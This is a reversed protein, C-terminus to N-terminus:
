PYIREAPFISYPIPLKHLRPRPLRLRSSFTYWRPPHFFFVENFIEKFKVSILIKQVTLKQGGNDFLSALSALQTQRPGRQPPLRQQRSLALASLSRKRITSRDIALMCKHLPIDNAPPHLPSLSFRFALFSYVSVGMCVWARSSSLARGHVRTNIHTDQLRDQLIVRNWAPKHHVRNKFCVFFLADTKNLTKGNTKKKEIHTTTPLSLSLEMWGRTLVGGNKQRPSYLSWEENMAVTECNWLGDKINKEIKEKTSPGRLVESVRGDREPKTQSPLKGKWYHLTKVAQRLGESRGKASAAVNCIRSQVALHTHWLKLRPFM